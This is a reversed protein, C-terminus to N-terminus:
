FPSDLVKTLTPEHLVIGPCYKTLLRHLELRIIPKTLVGNMGAEVCMANHEEDAFGTMAIITYPYGLTGRIIKTAQLGDIRPMQVDMFVVDYHIGEKIAEGIKRVVQEGDAVVDIDKIGELRLMRKIIEQNVMNDDAVLVRIATNAAQASIALANSNNDAGRFAKKPIAFYSDPNDILKLDKDVSSRRRVTAAAAHIASASPMIPAGGDVTKLSRSDDVSERRSVEHHVIEFNDLENASRVFRLPVRLTFTSGSGVKSSLMIEGNMVGALQRCISLGLGTGGFKRSLAQDGQVFPEFIQEQMNEAIGPGNDVVEFDFLLIKPAMVIARSSHQGFSKRRPRSETSNRNESDNPGNNSADKEIWSLRKDSAVSGKQAGLHLPMEEVISMRISGRPMVEGVCKVALSVEGKYKTFKLGNSILNIVVQLIRSSDGYLIMSSISDPVLTYGITIGKEAAQVDFLSHLQSVIEKIEFEKEDLSINGVQNKSFTLLDNLLNLLLEGSKLIVKLSKRIKATDSETLSVATMGLIGNLPTRLEHTINAIFLSKAENATEANVRAAESERTRERVQDELHTYQKVLEDIMRNYTESLETLEDRIFSQPILVKTPVRFRSKRPQNSNPINHNEVIKETNDLHLTRDSQATQDTNDSGESTLSDSGDPKEHFELTTQETATRLRYIPKVAIYAMPLTLLIFFVAVGFATGIMVNRVYTMPAYVDSHPEEIGVAWTTLKLRVQSYGVAVDKAVTTQANISYGGLKLDPTTLAKAMVPYKSLNYDGFRLNAQPTPPLLYRFGTYQTNNTVDEPVGGVLIMTGGGQLGTSENIVKQINGSTMVVTIYGTLSPHQILVTSNGVVPLTISMLYGAEYFPGAVVGGLSSLSPPYLKNPGIPFLKEILNFDPQSTSNTINYVPNLAVDYLSISYFLEVSELTLNLFQAADEWNAATHNGAHYRSLSDQVPVQTALWYTQYYMFSFVQAVQSAKLLAVVQLSDGTLGLAYHSTNVGAVIAMVTLSISVVFCILLILQLRIGVPIQKNTDTPRRFLCPGIKLKMTDHSFVSLTYLIKASIM